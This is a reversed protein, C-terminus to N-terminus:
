LIKEYRMGIPPKLLSNYSQLIGPTWVLVTEPNRRPLGPVFLWESTPAISLVFYLIHPFTTTERTWAM